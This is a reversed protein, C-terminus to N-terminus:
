RVVVVSCYISLHTMKMQEYSRPKIEIYM